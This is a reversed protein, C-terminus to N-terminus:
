PFFVPGGYGDGDGAPKGGSRPLGGRPGRTGQGSRAHDAGAQLPFVRVVDTVPLALRARARKRDYAWLNGVQPSISHRGGSGGGPLRRGGLGGGALPRLFTDPNTQLAPHRSKGGPWRHSFRKRANGQCPCPATPLPGGAEEGLHAAPLVAARIRVSVRRHPSKRRPGAASRRLLWMGQVPITM